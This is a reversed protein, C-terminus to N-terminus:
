KSISSMESFSRLGWKTQKAIVDAAHLCDHFLIPLLNRAPGVDRTYHSDDCNQASHGELHRYRM